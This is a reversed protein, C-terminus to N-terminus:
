IKMEEDTRATILSTDWAFYPDGSVADLGLFYRSGEKFEEDAILSAVQEAGLYGDARIRGQAIQLIKARMLLQYLTVPNERLHGARDILSPQSNIASM